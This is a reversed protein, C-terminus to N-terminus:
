MKAKREVRAHMNYLIYQQKKVIKVIKNTIKLM